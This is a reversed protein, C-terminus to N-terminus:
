ICIGYETDSHKLSHKVHLGAHGFVLKNTSPALGRKVLHKIWSHLYKTKSKIYLFIYLIIIFKEAFIRLIKISIFYQNLSNFSIMYNMALVFLFRLLTNM